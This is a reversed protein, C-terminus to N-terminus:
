ASYASTRAWRLSTQGAPCAGASVVRVAGSTTSYCGLIVGNSGPIAGFAIGGIGIVLLVVVVAALSKRGRASGLKAEVLPGGKAADSAVCAGGPSRPYGAPRRPTRLQVRHLRCFSRVAYM